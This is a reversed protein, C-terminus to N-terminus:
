SQPTARSHEDAEKFILEAEDTLVDAWLWSDKLILIADHKEAESPSDLPMHHKRRLYREFVPRRQFKKTEPLNETM